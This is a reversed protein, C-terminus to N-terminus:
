IGVTREPLLLVAGGLFCLAGFFTGLNSLEVNLLEGTSVVIYGAVASVAFAVSGILNLLTIWWSLSRPSWSTWGHCVEFWALASAVLFCVSGVADPRWVYRHAGQATLSTEIAYGTSLNFCLTGILQIATASWDIRRPRWTLVRHRRLPPAGPAPLVPASLAPPPLADVAERYQLFGAATFFLSGIFLTVADSRLGVGDLYGPVVGVAFLAAGVGFLVGIWWGRTRPAWWTSGSAPGSAVQKRYHRSDLRTLLGNPREAEIFTIFPGFRPPHLHGDDSSM